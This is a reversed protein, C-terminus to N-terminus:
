LLHPLEQSRYLETYVHLLDEEKVPQTNFITNLLPQLLRWKAGRVSHGALSMLEAITLLRIWM